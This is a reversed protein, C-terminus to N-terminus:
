QRRISDEISVTRQQKWFAERQGAVELPQASSV